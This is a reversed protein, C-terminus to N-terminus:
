SWYTPWMAEWTAVSSNGRIEPSLTEEEEPKEPTTQTNAESVGMAEVSVGTPEAKVPVRGPTAATIEVSATDISDQIGLSNGQPFVHLVCTEEIDM